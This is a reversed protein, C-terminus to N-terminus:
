RRGAYGPHQRIGRRSAREVTHDLFRQRIDLIDLIGEPELRAAVPVTYYGTGPGIELMREGPVPDLIALLRGRTVLPRPLDLISRAFYPFATPRVAAWARLILWAALATLLGSQVRRM